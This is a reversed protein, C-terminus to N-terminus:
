IIDDLDAIMTSQKHISGGEIPTEKVGTYGPFWNLNNIMFSHLSRQFTTTLLTNQKICWSELDEASIYDDSPSTVAFGSLSLAQKVNPLENMPLKFIGKIFEYAVGNLYVRSYSMDPVTNFEINVIRTYSISRTGSSDYISAGLEPAKVYGRTRTKTAMLDGQFMYAKMSKAFDANDPYYKSVVEPNFTTTIKRETMNDKLFTVTFAEDSNMSLDYLTKVYTSLVFLPIIRLGETSLDLKKRAKTVTLGKKDQNCRLYPVEVESSDLSLFTDIQKTFKKDFEEQTYTNGETWSYVEDYDLSVVMREFSPIKTNTIKDFRYSPIEVYCLYKALLVKYFNELSVGEEGFALRSVKEYFLEGQKNVRNILNEQKDSISGGVTIGKGEQAAKKAWSYMYKTISSPQLVGDVVSENFMDLNITSMM